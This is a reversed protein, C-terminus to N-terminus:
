RMRQTSRGGAAQPADWQRDQLWRLTGRRPWLPYDDGLSSDKRKDPGMSYLHFGGPELEYVLEGSGLPDALAEPPLQAKIEDLTEPWGGSRNKYRRLEILIRVGRRECIKERYTLACQELVEQPSRGNILFRLREWASRTDLMTEVQRMEASEAEWADALTPLIEEIMTLHKNTADREVIFEGLASLFFSEIAGATVFDLAAPQQRLHATMQAVCRLKQRAADVRGQELGDLAAALVSQAWYGMTGNRAIATSRTWGMAEAPAASDCLAPFYCRPRKAADLLMTIREEESFAPAPATSRDQPVGPAPVILRVQPDAALLQYYITAANEEPGLAHAAYIAALRHEASRDRWGGAVYLISVLVLGGLLVIAIRLRWGRWGRGAFNRDQRIQEAVGTSRLVMQVSLGNWRYIM